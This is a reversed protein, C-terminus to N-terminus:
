KVRREQRIEVDSLRIGVRKIEYGTLESVRALIRDQALAARELLPGGDRVLVGVG